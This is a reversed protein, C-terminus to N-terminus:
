CTKLPTLVVAHVPILQDVFYLKRAEQQLNTVNSTLCSFLNYANPIGTIM